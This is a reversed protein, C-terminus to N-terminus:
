VRKYFPLIIMAVDTYGAVAPKTSLV